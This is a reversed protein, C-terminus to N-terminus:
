IKKPKQRVLYGYDDEVPQALEFGSKRLDKMYEIFNKLNDIIEEISTAGELLWKGRVIEDDDETDIPTDEVGMSGDLFDEIDFDIQKIDESGMEADIEPEDHEDEEYLVEFTREPSDFELIAHIQQSRSCIIADCDACKRFSELVAEDDMSHVFPKSLGELLLKQRLFKVFNKVKKNSPKLM